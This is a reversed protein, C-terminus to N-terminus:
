VPFAVKHSASLTSEFLCAGAASPSLSMLRALVKAPLKINHRPQSVTAPRGMKRVTLRLMLRAPKCLTHSRAPTAMRLSSM